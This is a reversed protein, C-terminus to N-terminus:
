SHFWSLSMVIKLCKNTIWGHPWASCPVPQTLRSCWPFALSSIYLWPVVHPWAPLHHATPELARLCKSTSCLLLRVYIPPLLLWYSLLFDLLTHDDPLWSFFIIWSLTLPWVHHTSGLSLLLISLHGSHEVWSYGTVQILLSLLGVLPPSLIPSYFYPSPHEM